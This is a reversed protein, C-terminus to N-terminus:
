DFTWGSACPRRTAFEDCWMPMVPATQDRRRPRSTMSNRRALEAARRRRCRWDQHRGQNRGTQTQQHTGDISSYVGNGDTVFRDSLVEIVHQLEHGVAGMLRWDSALRRRDVIVRMFRTSGSTVMWLKLCAAVGQPCRGPEVYVIGDSVEVAAVLRTLTPSHKTAQEILDAISRDSSRVRSMTETAAAPRASLCTAITAALAACVIPSFSRRHVTM